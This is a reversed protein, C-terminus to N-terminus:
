SENAGGKTMTNKDDDINMVYLPTINDDDFITITHNVRDVINKNLLNRRVAMATDINLAGIALIETPSNINYFKVAGQFESDYSNYKWLYTGNGTDIFGSSIATGYNEGDSDIIQARLDASIGAMASGLNITFIKQM